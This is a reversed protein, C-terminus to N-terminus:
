DGTGVASRTGVRAAGADRRLSSPRRAAQHARRPDRGARWPFHRTVAFAVTVAPNLHAGSIHGLAAIMVMIVLGFALAVGVHGLAGTNTQVVIAGCGASVLGFTGLCEAAARRHLPATM